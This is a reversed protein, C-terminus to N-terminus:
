SVYGEVLWEALGERGEADLEAVQYPRELASRRALDEPGIDVGGDRRREFLILLGLKPDRIELTNPGTVELLVAM